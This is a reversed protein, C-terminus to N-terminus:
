NATAIFARIDASIFYKDGSNRNKRAILSRLSEQAINRLCRQSILQIEWMYVDFIGCLANSNIKSNTRWFRCAWCVLETHCLSFNFVFLMVTFYPPIKSLTICVSSTNFSFISFTLSAALSLCLWLVWGQCSFLLIILSCQLGCYQVSVKSLLSRWDLASSTYVDIYSVNFVM